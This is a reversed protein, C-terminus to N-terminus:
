LLVRSGILNVRQNAQEEGHAFMISLALFHRESRTRVMM